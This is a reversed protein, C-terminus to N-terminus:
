HKAREMLQYVGQRSIGLERAIEAVSVGEDRAASAAERIRARARLFDAYAEQSADRCLQVGVLASRKRENGDARAPSHTM